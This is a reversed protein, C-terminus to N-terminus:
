FYTKNPFSCLVLKHGVKAPGLARALIAAQVTSLGLCVFATSNVLAAKRLLSM